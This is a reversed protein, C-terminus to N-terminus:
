ALPDAAPQPQQFNALASVVLQELDIVRPRLLQWERGTALAQSEADVAAVLDQLLNGVRVTEDRRYEDAAGAALVGWRGALEMLDSRLPPWVLAREAAARTSLVPPLRVSTAVRTRDALEWSETEWASKRKNRNAVTVGVLTAGVLLLLILLWWGSGIGTSSSAAVASEQPTPTPTPAATPTVTVEVKTVEIRPPEAQTPQQTPEAKTPEAKTPEPQTTEARTTEAKTPETTRTPTERSPRPSRSTETETPTATATPAVTREITPRESPLAVEGGGDQCGAGFLLVGAVVGLGALRQASRRVADVRM